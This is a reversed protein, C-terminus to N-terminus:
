LISTVVATYYYVNFNISTSMHQIVICVTKMVIFDTNRLQKVNNQIIYLLLRSLDYM